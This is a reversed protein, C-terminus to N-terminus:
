RPQIIEPRVVEPHVPPEQAESLARLMEEGTQAYSVKPALPVPPRDELHDSTNRKIDGLLDKIETLTSAM